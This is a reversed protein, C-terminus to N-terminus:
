ANQYEKKLENIWAQHYPKYKERGEVTLSNIFQQFAKEGMGERAVALTPSAQRILWNEARKFSPIYDPLNIEEAEGLEELTKTWWDFRYFKQERKIGFDIATTLYGSLNKNRTQTLDDFVAQAHNNRLQLEWRHCGNEHIYDADYYRIIKDSKGFYCTPIPGTNKCVSEEILKYSNVGKFHHNEGAQKVTEFAPLKSSTDHAIDLRTIKLGQRSLYRATTRWNNIQSFYHGPLQIIIKYGEDLKHIGGYIKSRVSKFSNEFTQGCHIPHNNWSWSDGIAILSCLNNLVTELAHVTEVFATGQLYDLRTRIVKTM